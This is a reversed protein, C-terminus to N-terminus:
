NIVKHSLKMSNSTTSRQLIQYSGPNNYHSSFFEESERGNSAVEAESCVSISATRKRFFSNINSISSLSNNTKLLRPFPSRYAHQPTLPYVDKSKSNFPILHSGTEDQFEDNAQVL